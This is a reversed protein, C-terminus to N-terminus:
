MLKKDNGENRQNLRMLQDNEVKKKMKTPKTTTPKAKRM